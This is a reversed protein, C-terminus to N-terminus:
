RTELSVTLQVHKEQKMIISMAKFGKFKANSNNKVDTCLFKLCTCYQVDSVLCFKRGVSLLSM